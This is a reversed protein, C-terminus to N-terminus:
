DSNTNMADKRMDQAKTDAQNQAQTRSEYINGPPGNYLCRLDTTLKGGSYTHTVTEVIYYGGYGLRRAASDKQRPDGLGITDPNIYVQSTPLFMMNGFLKVDANHPYRLEDYLDGNRVIQFVERAQSSIRQFSISQVIGKDKSLSLHFKGDGVDQGKSGDGSPSSWTPPQQHYIIYDASREISSKTFQGTSGPLNQVAVKGTKVIGRNVARILSAGSFSIIKIEIPLIIDAHNFHNFSYHLLKPFMEEIVNKMSYFARGPYILEKYVFTQIVSLPIPIDAINITKPIIDAKKKKRSRRKKAYIIDSTLIHYRKIDIEAEVVARVIIDRTSTTIKESKADSIALKKILDLDDLMKKMYASVFDGFTCYYVSQADFISEWTSKKRIRNGRVTMVDSDSEDIEPEREFIDMQYFEEDSDVHYIKENKYLTDIVSAFATITDIPAPKQNGSTDPSSKAADKSKESPMDKTLKEIVEGALPASVKKLMNYKTRHDAIISFSSEDASQLGGTYRVSLSASGDPNVSIDHGAYYLFALMKSKSINELEKSTFIDTVLSAYGLMAAVKCNRGSALAGQSQTKDSGDTEIDTTNSRIVFLDALAAYGDPAEFILSLNDVKISLNATLFKRGAQWPNKGNLTMSFSEITAAGGTLPKELDIRSGDATFPYDASTPFYFPIGQKGVVKFLLLEPTLASLKHNDMNIITEDVTAGDHSMFGQSVVSEPNYYGEIKAVLVDKQIKTASSKEIQEQDELTKYVLFAEPSWLNDGSM